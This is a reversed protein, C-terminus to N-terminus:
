CALIIMVMLQLKDFPVGPIISENKALLFMVIWIYGVLTFVKIEKLINEFSNRNDEIFQKGKLKVSEEIYSNIFVKFTQENPFQHPDEWQGWQRGLECFITGFDFGRYGYSSLDFDCIVIGDSETILINAGRYDGHVFTQVPNLDLIIKKVWELEQGVDYDKLTQSHSEDILAKLDFSENGVRYTDDFFDFLLSGTRKLPVDMAHIRALKRSVEEVLKLDNHEEHRFNKHKKYM